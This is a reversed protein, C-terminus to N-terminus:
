TTETYIEKGQEWINKYNDDVIPGNILKKYFLYWETRLSM